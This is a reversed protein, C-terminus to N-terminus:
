GALFKPYYYYPMVGLSNHLRLYGEETQWAPDATGDCERGTIWYTIDGVWPITEAPENRLLALFSSLM